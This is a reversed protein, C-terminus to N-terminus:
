IRWPQMMRLHSHPGFPRALLATPWRGPIEVGRTQGQTVHSMCIMKTREALAQEARAVMVAPDHDIEVAKLVVSERDELGLLAQKPMPHEESTIVVEDAPEWRSGGLVAAYGNQTSVTLAIEDTAAGRVAAIRGRAVEASECMLWGWEIPLVHEEYLRNFGADIAEHAENSPLDLGGTNLQIGDQLGPDHTPIEDLNM